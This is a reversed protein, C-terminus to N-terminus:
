STWTQQTSCISFQLRSRATVGFEHQFLDIDRRYLKGVIRRTQEDYYERYPKHQSANRGPLRTCDAGVRRCIRDFDEQFREFRGVFDVLPRQGADAIWRCQPWFHFNNRHPWAHFERCFDGFSRFRRVGDVVQANARHWRHQPTMAAFYHYLSVFRDWPNRVFAFRYYGDPADVEDAKPFHGTWQDWWDLSEISSGGTRPVHFFVCRHAHSRNM